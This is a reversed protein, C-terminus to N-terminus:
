SSSGIAYTIAAGQMSWRSWAQTVTHGTSQMECSGAASRFAYMSGSAQMSHPAHSDAQGWPAIMSSLRSGPAHAAKASISRPQHISGSHARAATSATSARTAQHDRLDGGAREHVARAAHPPSGIEGVVGHEHRPVQQTGGDRPEDDPRVAADRREDRPLVERQADPHIVADDLPRVGRRAVRRARIGVLEQDAVYGAPSERRM